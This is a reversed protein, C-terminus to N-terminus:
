LQTGFLGVRICAKYLPQGRQPGAESRHWITMFRYAADVIGRHWNGSKTAARPWLSGFLLLSSDTSGEITKFRRLQTGFLSVRILSLSLMLLDYAQNSLIARKDHKALSGSVPDVILVVPNLLNIGSTM